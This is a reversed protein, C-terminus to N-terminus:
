RGARTCAPRWVFASTVHVRDRPIFLYTDRACRKGDVISMEFVESGQTGVLIRKEDESVDLSRVRPYLCPGCGRVDFDCVPSLDRTWLKVMGDKGGSVVGRGYVVLANVHDAHAKRTVTLIRSPAGDVPAFVYLHGDASGV